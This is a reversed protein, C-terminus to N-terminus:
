QCKFVPETYIIRQNYEAPSPVSPCVTNTMGENMLVSSTNGCQPMKVDFIVKDDYGKMVGNREQQCKSDYGPMQSQSVGYVPPINAEAGSYNRSLTLRNISGPSPRWQDKSVIRSSVNRDFPAFANEAPNHFLIPDFRNKTEGKLALAPHDLRVHTTQLHSVPTQPLTFMSFQEIKVPNTGMQHHVSGEGTVGVARSRSGVPARGLPLGIGRLDTEVDVPQFKTSIPAGSTQPRIWPDNPFSTSSFPQPATYRYAGPAIQRSLKDEYASDDTTRKM